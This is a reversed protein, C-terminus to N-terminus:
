PKMRANMEAKLECFHSHIEVKFYQDFLERSLGEKFDQPWFRTDECWMHLCNIFIAKYHDDLYKELEHPNKFTPVIFLPCNMYLDADNPKTAGRPLQIELIDILQSLWEAFKKQPVVAMTMTPIIDAM